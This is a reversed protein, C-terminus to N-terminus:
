IITYQKRRLLRSNSNQEKTCCMAACQLVTCRIAAYQLVNCCLTAYQLVNCFMARSAEIEPQKANDNPFARQDMLHFEQQKPQM